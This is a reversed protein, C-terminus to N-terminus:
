LVKRGRVSYSSVDATEESIPTLEGTSVQYLYLRGRIGNTFGKGNFWFPIEDVVEYADDKGQVRKELEAAAMILYRDGDVRYMGIAKLPVTFAKVAEGGAPSIEYYTTSVEDKKQSDKKGKGGERDAPFLLTGKATWVYSKGDGGATLRTVKDKVKDYLYLDGKYDNDKLDAHQVVFAVSKGDPAFTPNSVFQFRTFTEIKIPNM